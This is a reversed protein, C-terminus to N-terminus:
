RGDRGRGGSRPRDQFRLQGVLMALVSLAILIVFVVSVVNRTARDDHLAYLLVGHGAILASMITMIMAVFTGLGHPDSVRSWDVNRVLGVPGRVRITIAVVFLLAAIVLSVILGATQDSM